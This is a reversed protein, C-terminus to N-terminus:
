SVVQRELARHIGLAVADGSRPEQGRLQPMKLGNIACNNVRLVYDGPQLGGRAAPSNKLVCQIELRKHGSEVREAWQIGLFGRPNYEEAPQKGIVFALGKAFSGLANMAQVGLPAASGKGPRQKPIPPDNPELNLRTWTMRDKTLDIELRFRALITFGLIGDISAGPLGLANMGVLQFPDEVRARVNNLRAVKSTLNIM